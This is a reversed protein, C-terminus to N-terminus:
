GPYQAWPLQYHPGDKFSRWDGGWEIPINLERAAQKFAISIREYLPWDWRVTGGVLAAVDIAHALGNAGPIHRSRLTQSAGKAVLQRQRELTRVGETITFPVASIERARRAIRVLDLHVGMLNREARADFNAM